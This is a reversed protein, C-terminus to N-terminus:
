WYDETTSAMTMNVSQDFCSLQLLINSGNCREGYAYVWIVLFSCETSYVCVCVRARAPSSLRPSTSVPSCLRNYPGGFLTTLQHQSGLWGCPFVYFSFHLMLVGSIVQKKKKKLCDLGREREREKRRKRQQDFLLVYVEMERDTAM